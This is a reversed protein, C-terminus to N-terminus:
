QIDNLAGACVLQVSKSTSPHMMECMLLAHDLSEFGEDRWSRTLHVRQEAFMSRGAMSSTQGGQGQIDQDFKSGEM